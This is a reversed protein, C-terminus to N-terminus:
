YVARVQLYEKCTSAEGLEGESFIEKLHMTVNQPTVDFLEALHAQTLWVNDDEFRCQIRTRGDETQYLIIGSISVQSDNGTKNDDRTSPTKKSKTM